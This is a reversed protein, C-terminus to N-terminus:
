QFFLSLNDFVKTREKLVPDHYELHDFHIGDAHRYYYFSGDSLEFRNMQIQGFALIRGSVRKTEVCYQSPDFQFYQLGLKTEIRVRTIMELHKTDRLQKVIWALLIGSQKTSFPNEPEVNRWYKDPNRKIKSVSIQDNSM